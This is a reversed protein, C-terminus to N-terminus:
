VAKVLMLKETLGSRSSLGSMHTLFEQKEVQVIFHYFGLQKFISNVQQIINQESATPSAQIHLSGICMKSSHQWFHPQGVSVIGEVAFVQNLAQPIHEEIHRPTRLLLVLASHKLLPLVSLFILVAIFISCVPDAVYWGFSVILLRHTNVHPPDILRTIAESFVFLSIVLLFLGNIFGSLDEVRSYREVVLDLYKSNSCQRATAISSCYQYSPVPGTQFLRMFYRFRCIEVVAEVTSICVGLITFLKDQSMYDSRAKM